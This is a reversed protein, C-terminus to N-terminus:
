KKQLLRFLQRRYYDGDRRADRATLKFARGDNPWLGDGELGVEKKTV